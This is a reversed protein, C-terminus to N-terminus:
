FSIFSDGWQVMLRNLKSLSVKGSSENSEFLSITRMRKRINRRTGTHREDEPESSSTKDTVSGTLIYQGFEDNNDIESKIDDWIFSINQWEDYLIPKPGVILVARKKLAFELTKDSIRPIYKKVMNMDQFIIGITVLLIRYKHFFSDLTQSKKFGQNTTKLVSKLYFCGGNFTTIVQCSKKHTIVNRPISLMFSGNIQLHLYKMPFFLRNTSKNIPKFIIIFSFLKENYASLLSSLKSKEALLTSNLVPFIFKIM